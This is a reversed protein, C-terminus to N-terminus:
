QENFAKVVKKMRKSNVGLDSHGVRSASRYHIVKAQDDFLFEVDDIFPIPFTKFTYHLYNDEASILKTRSMGAITRKMKEMADALSGTYPIPERIKDPQTAQTSVCNPKDPCPKLQEKVIINQHILGTLEAKNVQVGRQGLALDALVADDEIGRVEALLRVGEANRQFHLLGYNRVGILPSVRYRNPEDAAEYSHTLGSATVEYIDQGKHTVKSIEALHRDGSLLLVNPSTVSALMDLLEQRAQPFNAWKEYGHEEPLAQISTGILCFDHTSAAALQEKLWGAQAAGLVSGTPNQGYRHGKQTPPALADRFSRTDLLIVRVAIDDNQVSYAQYAGARERVPAEAPVDLFKLMEVKAAAQHPWEKGGDNIGYDHDDWVGYIHPVEAAFRAYAPNSKQTQYDAAMKDMDDTDSYINDGLWLWADPQHASITSWYDQPLNQRNCSGFAITLVDGASPKVVTQAAGDITEPVFNESAGAQYFLYGIFALTLALVVKITTKFM